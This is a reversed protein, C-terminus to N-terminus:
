SKLKCAAMERLKTEAAKIAANVAEDVLRDVDVKQAVPSLTLDVDVNVTLLKSASIDIAIDLDSIERKPVKSLIYHRAVAEAIECATVAQKFSLESLGIEEAM